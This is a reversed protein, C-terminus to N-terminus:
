YPCHSSANAKKPGIAAKAVNAKVPATLDPPRVIAVKVAVRKQGRVTVAKAPVILVKARVTAVKAVNRTQVLVIAKVVHNLVLLLVVIRIAM